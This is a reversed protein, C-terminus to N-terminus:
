ASWAKCVSMRIKRQRPVDAQERRQIGEMHASFTGCGISILGVLNPQGCLGRSGRGQSLVGTAKCIQYPVHPILVLYTSL